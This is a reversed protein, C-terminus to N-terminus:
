DGLCRRPRRIELVGRPNPISRLYMLADVIATMHAGAPSNAHSLNDPYGDQYSKMQTLLYNLQKELVGIQEERTLM